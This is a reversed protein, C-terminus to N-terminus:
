LEGGANAFAQKFVRQSLVTALHLRFERSARWSTRPDVEGAALRGVQQVLEESFVQGKVFEETQRCRLPIPGAVGFALRFDAVIKKDELRCLVACGLTAIDMASRMAYKVYCGGFGQYNAPTLLIATLVEASQLDVQGPGKYFDEIATVRIGNPGQIRLQANLAFLTPASDASTVGNCVNGGITGINRIQPGGVLDAAEGLVPVYQRILPHGAIHSFSTGSGIVITGDTEKSIGQLESLRHISILEAGQIKGERLKILIDSGGAILRANPHAQLLLIAQEVSRAEEYNKIDYM